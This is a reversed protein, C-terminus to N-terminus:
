LLPYRTQASYVVSLRGEGEEVAEKPSLQPLLPPERGEVVALAGCKWWSSALRLPPRNPGHAEQPSSRCMARPVPLVM